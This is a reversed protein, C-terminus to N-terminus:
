GGVSADSCPPGPEPGGEPWVSWPREVAERVVDFLAAVQAGDVLRHDATVGIEIMRRAIIEGARVVPRAAAAGVVVILGLRAFPILPALAVRVGWSEVSSVMASGLPYRELRLPRLPLGLGATVFGALALGPRAGAGPIAGAVRFARGFGNDRGRRVERAGAYLERAVERPSKADAGRVCVASMHVGRGVDVVYSVAVEDRRRVRGLVARANVDPVAALGRGVGAGVLHTPTVGAQARCWREAETVDLDFFGHLRGSRAPRWTALALRNRLPSRSEM